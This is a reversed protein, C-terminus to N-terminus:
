VYKQSQEAAISGSKTLKSIYNFQHNSKGDMPLSLKWMSLAKSVEKKAM